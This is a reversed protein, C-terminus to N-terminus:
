IVNETLGTMFEAGEEPPLVYIECRPIESIKSFLGMSLVFQNDDEIVAGKLANPIMKWGKNDNDLANHNKGDCYEVIAMFAREFYPLEYGCNKILRTITDGIYGSNKKRCNPLLTNLTIHLWGEATVEIVGAIDVPNGDPMEPLAEDLLYKDLVTRSKVCLRELECLYDGLKASITQPSVGGTMAARSLSQLVRINDLQLDNLSSKLNDMPCVDGKSTAGSPPSSTM